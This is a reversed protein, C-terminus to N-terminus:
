QTYYVTTICNCPETTSRPHMIRSCASTGYKPMGGGSKYIYKIKKYKKYKQYKSEAAFIGYKPMHRDIKDKRSMYETVFIM